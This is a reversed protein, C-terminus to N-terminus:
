RKGKLLSGSPLPRREGKLLLACVSPRKRVIAATWVLHYSRSVELELSHELLTCCFPVSDRHQALYEAWQLGAAAGQERQRPM